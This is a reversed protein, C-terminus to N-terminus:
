WGSFDSQERSSPHLHHVMKMGETGEETGQERSSLRLQHVDQCWGSSLECSSPCVVDVMKGQETTGEWSSPRM